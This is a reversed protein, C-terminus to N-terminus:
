PQASPSRCKGEVAVSVLDNGTKALVWIDNQSPRVGGPLPVQHEPIALLLELDRFTDSTALAQRVEKPFGNAEQWSYALSRASYGTRWHKIPDALLPAWQDASTTPIYIASM